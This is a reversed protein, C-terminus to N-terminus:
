FSEVYARLLELEADTILDTDFAPMFLNAVGYQDGGNGERVKELVEHAEGMLPTLARGGSGDADHCNTCFRLFLGEGDAPKEAEGLWTWIADLTADDIINEGYAAMAGAFEDLDDRGNRVVYTNYGWDAPNRIDPGLSTGGGDAGHCSSCIQMFVMQGDPGGGGGEGGAGGAGGMGGMGGGMDQTSDSGGDDCGAAVALALALFGIRGLSRKM